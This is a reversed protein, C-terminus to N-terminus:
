VLNLMLSICCTHFAMFSRVLCRILTLQEANSIARCAPQSSETDSISVRTRVANAVKSCLPYRILPFLTGWTYAVPIVTFFISSALIRM